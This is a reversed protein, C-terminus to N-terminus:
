GRSYLRPNKKGYIPFFPPVFSPYQVAFCTCFLLSINVVFSFLIHFCGTDYSSNVVQPANHDGLLDAAREADLLAVWQLDKGVGVALHDKFFYEGM